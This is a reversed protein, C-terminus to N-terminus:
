LQNARRVAEALSRSGAAELGAVVGAQVDPRNQGMKAKAEVRTIAIEFAVVGKAMGRLYTEDQQESRWPNARGDEYTHM